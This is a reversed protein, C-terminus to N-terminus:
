KKICSFCLQLQEMSHVYAKASHHSTSYAHKVHAHEQVTTYCLYLRTDSVSSDNWYTATAQTFEWKSFHSIVGKDVHVLTLSQLSQKQYTQPYNTM